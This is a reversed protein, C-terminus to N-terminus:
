KTQNHNLREALTKFATAAVIPNQGNGIAHLRDLRNALGDNSGLIAPEGVMSELERIRDIRRCPYAHTAAQRKSEKNSIHKKCCVMKRRGSETTEAVIWIRKGKCHGGADSTGLVGWEADYGMSALDGLVRALGRGVLLPSNEVFVFRPRVEGVIRAM